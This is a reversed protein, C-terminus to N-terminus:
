GTRQKLDGNEGLFRKIKEVNGHDKEIGRSTLMGGPMDNEGLFRKIKRM